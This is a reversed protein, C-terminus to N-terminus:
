LHINARVFETAKLLTRLLAEAIHPNGIRQESLATTADIIVKGEAFEVLWNGDIRGDSQFEVFFICHRSRPLVEFDHSQPRERLAPGTGLIQVLHSHRSDGIFLAVLTFVVTALDGISHKTSSERIISSFIRALAVGTAGNDLFDTVFMQMHTNDGPSISTGLSGLGSDIRSRALSSIPDFGSNAVLEVTNSGKAVVARWRRGWATAVLQVDSHFGVNVGVLGLPRETIRRAIIDHSSLVKDVVVLVIV